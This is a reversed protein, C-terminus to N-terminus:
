AAFGSLRCRFYREGHPHIRALTPLFSYESLVGARSWAQLWAAITVIAGIILVRMCANYRNGIARTEPPWLRPMQQPVPLGPSPKKKPRLGWGPWM